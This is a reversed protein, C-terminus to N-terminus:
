ENWLDICEKAQQNRYKIVMNIIEKSMFLNLCCDTMLVINKTKDTISVSERILENETAILYLVRDGTKVDSELLGYENEIDEDELNEFSITEANEGLNDEESVDSFGDELSQKRKYKDPGWLTRTWFFIRQFEDPTQM